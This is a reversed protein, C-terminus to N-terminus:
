PRVTKKEVANRLLLTVGDYFGQKEHPPPHPLTPARAHAPPPPPRPPPTHHNCGASAGGEGRGGDWVCSM